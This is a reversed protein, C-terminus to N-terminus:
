FKRSVVKVNEEFVWQIEKLRGNFGSLVGNFYGEIKRSAGKSVRGGFSM